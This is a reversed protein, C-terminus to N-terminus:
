RRRLAKKTRKALYRGCTTAVANGLMEYRASDSITVRKGKENVGWATWDDPFGQLRECERPTFIRIGQRDPIADTSGGLTHCTGDNLVGDGNSSQNDIRVVNQGISGGLRSSKATLSASIAAGMSNSGPHPHSRLTGAVTLNQCEDGSPGGGKKWKATVTASILRGEEGAGGGSGMGCRKGDAATLTPALDVVKNGPENSGSATGAYLTSAVVPMDTGQKHRATLTQSLVNGQGADDCGVSRNTRATLTGAIEERTQVSPPPHGHMGEALSLIEAVRNARFDAVLFVRRRRQALGFYRADFCRWGVERAGRKVMEHLVFAFDRGDNSTLAGDVNEWIAIEPKYEDIIRCGEFYLQSKDGSLGARGGAISLDQCPSGFIIVDVYELEHKRGKGCDRVDGYRAIFPFHRRLVHKCRRNIEIQWKCKFKEQHFGMGLGEIGAFISGYTLQRM